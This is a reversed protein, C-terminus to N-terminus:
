FQVRGKASDLPRKKKFIHYITKLFATKKFFIYIELWLQKQVFNDPESFELHADKRGTQM